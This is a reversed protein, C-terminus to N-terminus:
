VRHSNPRMCPHIAAPFSIATGRIARRLARWFTRWLPSRHCTFTELTPSKRRATCLEVLAGLSFLVPGLRTSIPRVEKSPKGVTVASAPWAIADKAHRVPSFEPVVSGGSKGRQGGSDHSMTNQKRNGIFPAERYVTIYHETVKQKGTVTQTQKRQNRAYLSGLANVTGDNQLM